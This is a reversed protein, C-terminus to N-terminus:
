ILEYFFRCIWVRCTKKNGATPHYVQPFVNGLFLFAAAEWGDFIFYLKGSKKLDNKLDNKREFPVCAWRLWFRM